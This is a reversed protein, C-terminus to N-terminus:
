RLLDLIQVFYNEILKSFYDATSLTFVIMLFLGLLIKFPLSVMFINMQPMLKAVFAILIEVTIMVAFIPFIIKLGTSFIGSVLIIVQHVFDPSLILGKGPEITLFSQYIAEFLYIHANIAFFVFSALYIYLQSISDNNIGTNPDMTESASIGVQISLANGGVKIAIFLLNIIFGILFGIAFELILYISLSFMDNPIIFNGKSLLIPYILFAITACLWVKIQNPIPYTSFFPASVFFGSLRTIVIIFVIINKASLLNLLETPM